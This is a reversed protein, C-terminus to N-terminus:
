AQSSQFLGELWGRLESTRVVGKDSRVRELLMGEVLAIIARAVSRPRPIGHAKLAQELVALFRPRTENFLKLLAPEHSAALFLEFRTALQERSHARMWATLGTALASALSAASGAGTLAGLRGLAQLDLEAHRRLALALLDVRRRCYYSTSGVPLGAEADVGRHTLARTGATGILRLAADAIQTRRDVQTM